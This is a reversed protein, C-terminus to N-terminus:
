YYDIDWDFWKKVGDKIIKRLKYYKIFKYFLLNINLTFFISSIFLAIIHNTLNRNENMTAFLIGVNLMTTTITMLKTTKTIICFISFLISTIYGVLVVVFIQFPNLDTIKGKFLDFLALAYFILSGPLFTLRHSFPYHLYKLGRKLETNKELIPHPIVKELSIAAIHTGLGIGFPIGLFFLLSIIVFEWKLNGILQINLIYLYIAIVLLGGIIPAFINGYLLDPSLHFGPSSIKKHKFYHKSGLLMYISFAPIFFYILFKDINNFENMISSTYQM